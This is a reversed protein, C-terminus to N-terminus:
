ILRRIRAGIPKWSHDAKQRLQMRGPEISANDYDNSNERARKNGLVVTPKTETQSPRFEFLLFRWFVEEPLRRPYTPPPTRYNLGIAPLYGM